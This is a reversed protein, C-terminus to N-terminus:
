QQPPPNSTGTAPPATQAGATADAPQTAPAAVVDSPQAAPPAGADAPQATAAAPAAPPPAPPQWYGLKVYVPTIEFPMKDRASLLPEYSTHMQIVQDTWPDFRLFQGLPEAAVQKLDNNALKPGKAVLEQMWFTGDSKVLSDGMQPTNLSKLGKQRAQLQQLYLGFFPAGDALEKAGLLKMAEKAAEANDKDTHGMPLRQFASEPPFMLRDSFAYKTDIRHGLIIHAIQFALVANLNGMQQAGDASAVATTDILSKSVLITNGISVSELPETLLTRVRLPRSTQINNYVLINNALAELTKDFPSPADILGATYLREIVNDEAQQVWERQAGLPTLDTAQNSEDNAGIVTESENEGANEPVRLQYGWIHNIARFNLVHTPSKPDTEEIYVATPLWLGEQVNTRWSDFHYFERRDADSGAFDGDFRVINGGNREVWIRGFFRGYANNKTPKVDFVVTPVTGLFENRVFSFTYTQRNYSNSDVLLMAVFGSQHFTLHLTNSLGTIYSMSHKFKGFFGTKKEEVGKGQAYATDDIVKGFNVRGLMHLDSEPSQFMIPDAKMKQVYTEVLPLRDKLTKVVLQERVISKDVLASQAPTLKRAYPDEQVKKKGLIPFAHAGMAPALVAALAVATTLKTRLTM